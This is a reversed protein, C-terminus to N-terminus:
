TARRSAPTAPPPPRSPRWNTPIRSCRQLDIRGAGVGDEVDHVSYAVDDAWDMVQAELPRRGSRVDGRMWDFVELDDAYVGFKGGGAPRQWPYKM